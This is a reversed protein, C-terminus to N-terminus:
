TEGQFLLVTHEGEISPLARLQGERIRHSYLYVNTIPCLVQEKTFELRSTPM